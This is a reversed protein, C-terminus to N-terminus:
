HKVKYPNGLHVRDFVLQKKLAKNAFASSTLCFFVANGVKVTAKQCVNIVVYGIITPM